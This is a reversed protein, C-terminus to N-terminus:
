KKLVGLISSLISKVKKGKTDIYFKEKNLEVKAIGKESFSEWIEDYTPPIVEKGQKNIFGWKEGKRRVGALGNSFKQCSQLICPVVEEGKENIYGVGSEGFTTLMGENFRADLGTYKRPVDIISSKM